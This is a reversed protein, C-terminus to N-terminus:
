ITSMVVLKSQSLIMNGLGEVLARSQVTHFSLGHRAIQAELSGPQSLHDLYGFYIFYNHEYSALHDERLNGESVFGLSM